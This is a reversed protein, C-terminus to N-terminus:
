SRRCAATARDTYSVPPSFGWLKKYPTPPDHLMGTPMEKVFNSGGSVVQFDLLSLTVTHCMQLIFHVPNHFSNVHILIQVLPPNGHVSCRVQPELFPMSIRSYSDAEQSPGRHMLHTISETSVHGAATVCSFEARAGADVQMSAPVIHAGLEPLIRVRVEQSVSGVSSNAVCM